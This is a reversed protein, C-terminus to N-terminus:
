NIQDPLHFPFPLLNQKTQGFVQRKEFMSTKGGLLSHLPTNQHHRARIDDAVSTM